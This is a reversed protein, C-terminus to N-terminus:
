RELDMELKRIKAFSLIKIDEENIKTETLPVLGIRERFFINPVHVLLM